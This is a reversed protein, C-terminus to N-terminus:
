RPNDSTFASMKHTAMEDKIGEFLANGILEYGLQTPHIHDMMTDLNSPILKNLNIYKVRESDAISKITEDIRIFIKKIEDISLGIYHWAIKKTEAESNESKVLTLPNALIVQIHNARAITIMNLLNRRFVFLGYSYDANRKDKSYAEHASSVLRNEGNRIKEELARKIISFSIYLYSRHLFIELFNPQQYDGSLPLVGFQRKQSVYPMYKLDNWSHYIIIMDPDFDLIRTSLNSLSHFTTYGPVGANIIEINNGYKKKLKEGIQYPWTENDNVGFGWTDSGGLCFIRYTGSKKKSSFERGRFGFQNVSVSLPETFQKTSSAYRGRNHSMKYAPAPIYGIFTDGRYLDFYANFAKIDRKTILFFIRTAGEGLILSALIFIIFYKCRQRFIILFDM